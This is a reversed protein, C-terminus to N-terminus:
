KRHVYYGRNNAVKIDVFIDGGDQKAQVTIWFRSNISTTRVRANGSKDIFIHFEETEVSEGSIELVLIGNNGVNCHDYFDFKLEAHGWTSDMVKGRKPATHRPKKAPGFDFYFPLTGEDEERGRKEVPENAKFASTPSAPGTSFGTGIDLPRFGPGFRYGDTRPLSSEPGGPFRSGAAPKRPAGPCIPKDSRSAGFKIEPEPRVAQPRLVDPRVFSFPFPLPMGLTLELDDEGSFRPNPPLGYMQAPTPPHRGSDYSQARARVQAQARDQAVQRLMAARTPYEGAQRIDPVSSDFM